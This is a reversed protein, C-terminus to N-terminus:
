LCNNKKNLSFNFNKTKLKIYEKVILYIFILNGILYRKFLRRPEKTLRYLWELGIKQMWIPARKIVNATFDFSGGIGISIPVKYKQYNNYIWKEQKPAGLGVFLIDPSAKQIKKNIYDLLKEDKEFGFPPILVGCINLKPYKELLRAAARIAVYGELRGGFLFIKFEYKEAEACLREFLDAGCVREKLPFGLLKSAFILSMGDPLSLFANEYIERFLSDKRLKVIHDANPTVIYCPKVKGQKYLLIYDIIVRVAEEFSINSIPTNLFRTLNNM